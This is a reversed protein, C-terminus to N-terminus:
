GFLHQLAGVFCPILYDGGQGPLYGLGSRTQMWPLNGHFFPDSEPLLRFPEHLCQQTVRNGLISEIDKGSSLLPSYRCSKSEAQFITTNFIRSATQAM